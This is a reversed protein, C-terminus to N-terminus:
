CRCLSNWSFGESETKLVLFLTLYLLSPMQKKKEAKKKENEQVGAELLDNSPLLLLLLTPQPCVLAGTPPAM